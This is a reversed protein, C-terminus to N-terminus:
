DLKLARKRQGCPLSVVNTVRVFKGIVHSVM